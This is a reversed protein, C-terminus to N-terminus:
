FLPAGHKPTACAARPEADRSLRREIGFHVSRTRHRSSNETRLRHCIVQRDYRRRFDAERLSQASRTMPSADAKRIVATTLALETFLADLEAESALTTFASHERLAAANRAARTNACRRLM